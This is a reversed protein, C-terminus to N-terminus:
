DELKQASSPFVFVRLMITVLKGWNLRNKIEEHYCNLNTVTTGLYQFKAVNSILLNHNQGENQRRSMVM